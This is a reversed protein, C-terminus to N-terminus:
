ATVNHSIAPNCIIAVDSLIVIHIQGFFLSRLRYILILSTFLYIRPKYRVTCYHYPQLGVDMPTTGIFPIAGIEVYMYALHNPM